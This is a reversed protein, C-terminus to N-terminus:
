GPLALGTGETNGKCIFPVANLLFCEGFPDVLVQHLYSDKMSAARAGRAAKLRSRDTGERLYKLNSATHELHHLYM